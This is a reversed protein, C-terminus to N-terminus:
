LIQQVTRPLDSRPQLRGQDLFRLRTVLHIITLPIDECSTDLMSLDEVSRRWNRSLVRWRMIWRKSSSYGSVRRGLGVVVAAGVRSELALVEERSGANEMSCASRRLSGTERSRSSSRDEGRM